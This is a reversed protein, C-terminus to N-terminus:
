RQRSKRANWRHVSNCRWGIQISFYALVGLGIGFVLGGVLMPVFINDLQHFLWTFSLSEPLPQVRMDLLFAGLKYSGYYIPGMTVPNNIWILSISIPLNAHLWVALMAAIPTHLPCPLFAVFVSIFGAVSVSHRTMHWLSPDHIWNGLRQLSKYKALTERSPVIRKLLKRAM